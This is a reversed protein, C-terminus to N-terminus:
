AKTQKQGQLTTKGRVCVPLSTDWCGLLHQLQIVICIKGQKCLKWHKIVLYFSKILYGPKSNPAVIEHNAMFVFM